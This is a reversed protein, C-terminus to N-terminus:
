PNAQEGGGALTGTFTVETPKAQGKKAWRITGEVSNDKITGKWLMTGEKTSTTKATFHWVNGSEKATYKAMGFGMSRCASSEFKGSKFILSDSMPPKGSETLQATFLKGDLKGSMSASPKEATKTPTGAPHQQAALSLGSWFLLLIFAFFLVFAKSYLRVTKM